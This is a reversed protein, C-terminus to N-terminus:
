PKGSPSKQLEEKRSNIFDTPRIGNIKYFQNSFQQRSNMGCSDALAEVTYNLYKKDYAMLQTIYNIRLVKLYANMNMHKYENIVYSLHTTNSKLRKAIIPLTLDKETFMNKEEFSALKELLDAVVEPSYEYKRGNNQIKHAKGSANRVAEEELKLVIKKYKWSITKQQQSYYLFSILLAAITLSSAVLAYERFNKLKLLKEREARLIKTDYERYIRSSLFPFDATLISDVKLLQNAYHLATQPSNNFDSTKLLIEYANRLEPIITRDRNFLSDVKKLYPLAKQPQDKKLYSKAVYFYIVALPTDEKKEKMILAAKLLTYIAAQYSKETYQLIGTEKLFYGSEQHFAPLDRYPVTTQLLSDVARWEKLQRYNIVLQHISNLYGRTNNFQLNPHQDTKLSNKFFRNCIIFNSIAENHYGLYSKVIGIHYRIKNILYLDATNEAYNSATLYEHLAKNYNKFNFYYVIGRGLYSKSILASDGSRLAAFITSDAYKLKQDGAAAYYLADEYAYTLHKFNHNTKAWSISKNVAPLARVDNEAFQDYTKQLDIYTMVSSQASFESCLLIAILFLNRCM